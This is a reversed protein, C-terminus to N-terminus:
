DSLQTWSKIMRQVTAGWAGRGHSKEPLFVSHTARDGGPSKGSEPILSADGTDGANRSTEKCM